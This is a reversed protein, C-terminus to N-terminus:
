WVEWVNSDVPLESMAINFLPSIIECVYSGKNISTGWSEYIIEMKTIDPDTKIDRVNSKNVRTIRWTKCWWTKPLNERKKKSLNIM